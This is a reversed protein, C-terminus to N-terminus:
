SQGGGNRKLMKLKYRLIREYRAEDSNRYRKYALYFFAEFEKAPMIARLENLVDDRPSTLQRPDLRAKKVGSKWSTYSLGRQTSM